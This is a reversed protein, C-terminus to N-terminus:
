NGPVQFVTGDAIGALQPLMLQVNRVSGDVFALPQFQGVHNSGFNQNYFPGVFPGSDPVCLEGNAVFGNGERKTNFGAFFLPPKGPFGFITVPDNLVYVDTGPQDWGIDAESQFGGWQQVWVFKDSLLATNSMGDTIQLFRVPTDDGLASRSFTTIPPFQAFNAVYAPFFGAYDCFGQNASRRAPCVFTKVPYATGNYPQQEVYPLIPPYFTKTSGNPPLSEHDNHYMHMALALQKQNNQCQVRAAAARIKQVAPLLLGILVGIIAIVVLLEILTFAPRRKTMPYDGM